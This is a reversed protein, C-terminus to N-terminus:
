MKEQCVNLSAIYVYDVLEVMILNFIIYLPNISWKIAVTLVFELALM